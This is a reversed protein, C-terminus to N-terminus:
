AGPKVSGISCGPFLPLGDPDLYSRRLDELSADAFWSFEVADRSVGDLGSPFVACIQGDADLLSVIHDSSQELRYGPAVDGSGAPGPRGKLFIPPLRHRSRISFGFMATLHRELAAFDDASMIMEETEGRERKTLVFLGSVRRVYFDVDSYTTLVWVGGRMVVVYQDMGIWDAFEDTFPLTSM